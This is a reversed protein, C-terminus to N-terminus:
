LESEFGVTAPFCYVISGRVEVCQFDNARVDIRKVCLATLKSSELLRALLIQGDLTVAIYEQVFSHVRPRFARSPM